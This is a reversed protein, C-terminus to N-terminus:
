CISIKKCVGKYLSNAVLELLNYKEDIIEKSLKVEDGINYEEEFKTGKLKDINSKSFQGKSHILANRMECFLIMDDKWFCSDIDLVIGGNMLYEIKKLYSDRGLKDLKKDILTKILSDYSGSEIIDEFTIQEKSKLSNPNLLMTTKISDLIFEDIITHMYVFIMKFGIILQKKRSNEFFCDVIVSSSVFLEKNEKKCLHKLEECNNKYEDHGVFLYSDKHKEYLGISKILDEFSNVNEMLIALVDEPSYKISLEDIIERELVGIEHEKKSKITEEKYGNISRMNFKYNEYLEKYYEKYDMISKGGM